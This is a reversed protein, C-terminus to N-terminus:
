AALVSSALLTPKWISFPSPQVSPDPNPAFLEPIVAGTRRIRGQLAARTTCRLARMCRLEQATATATDDSQPRCHALCCPRRCPRGLRPSSPRRCTRAIDCACAILTDTEALGWCCGAYTTRRTGSATVLGEHLREPEDCSPKAM